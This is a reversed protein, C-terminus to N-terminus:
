RRLHDPMAREQGVRCGGIIFLYKTQNQMERKTFHKDNNIDKYYPTLGLGSVYMSFQKFVFEAQLIIM